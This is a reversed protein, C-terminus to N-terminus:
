YNKILLENIQGRGNSDSNIHRKAFVRQINFEKYLEDFFNDKTDSNSLLLYHGKKSLKKYYESLQKQDEDNFDEKSYKTFSSSDGLPRYPPDLYVFANQKDSITISDYSNSYLETNQLGIHCSNINEEDLIKPNKYYGIPVNFEGKSNQRFLGNFCTKNLAILLAAKQIWAEKDQKNYKVKLKNYPTRLNNYFYRKRSEQNLVLYEESIERLKKILEEPFLKIVKYTIMLDPNIDNIISKKISYNSLLYFLLAGGGVFPEIYLDIQKTKLIHPPFNTELENLLQRKGGAWKLFPKPQTM